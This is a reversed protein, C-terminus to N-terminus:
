GAYLPPRTPHYLGAHTYHGVLWRALAFAEAKSRLWAPVIPRRAVAPMPRADPTDVPLPQDGLDDHEDDIDASWNEPRRHRRADGLDVVDAEAATWDFEDDPNPTAM